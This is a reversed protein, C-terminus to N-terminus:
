TRSKGGNISPNRIYQLSNHGAKVEKKALAGYKLNNLGNVDRETCQKAIEKSGKELKDSHKRQIVNMQTRYKLKNLTTNWM